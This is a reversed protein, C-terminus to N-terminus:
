GGGLEAIRKKAEAVFVGRPFTEVYLELDGPDDSDKV